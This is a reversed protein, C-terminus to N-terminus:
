GGPEVPYGAASGGSHSRGNDNLPVPSMRGGPLATRLSGSAPLTWIATVPEKFASDLVPNEITVDSM